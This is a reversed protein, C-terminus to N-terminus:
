PRSSVSVRKQRAVSLVPRNVSMTVGSEIPRPSAVARRSSETSGTRASNRETSIMGIATEPTAVASIPSNTNSWSLPM